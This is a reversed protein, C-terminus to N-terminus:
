SFVGELSRKSFVRVLSTEGFSALSVLLSELEVMFHEPSRLAPGM